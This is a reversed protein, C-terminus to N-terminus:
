TSPSGTPHDGEAIAKLREVDQAWEWELNAAIRRRLIRGFVGVVEYENRPHLETGNGARELRFTARYRAGEAEGQM